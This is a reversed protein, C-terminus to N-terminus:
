KKLIQQLTIDNKKDIIDATEKAKIKPLIPSIEIMKM